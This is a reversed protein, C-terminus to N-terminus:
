DYIRVSGGTFVEIRKTKPDKTNQLTLELNKNALGRSDFCLSWGNSPSRSQNDELAAVMNIDPDLQRDSTSFAGDAQWDTPKTNSCNSSREITFSNAGTPRVRYASTLSMAKARAMSFSSALRNTSDPLSRTAFSIGPVIIATLIGGVTLVMILEILSSGRDCSSGVKKFAIGSKILLKQVPLTFM